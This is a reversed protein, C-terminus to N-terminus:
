TWLSCGATACCARACGTPSVDFGPTKATTSSSNYAKIINEQEIPDQKNTLPLFPHFAVVLKLSPV